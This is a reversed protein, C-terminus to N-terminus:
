PRTGVRAPARYRGETLAKFEEVRQACGPAKMLQALVRQAEAAAPKDGAREQAQRLAWQLRPDAPDEAELARLATPSGSLWADLLRAEWHHPVARILQALENRAEPRRGAALAHLALFFRAPPYADGAGLAKAFAARSESSQDRELFAAGLLHWAEGDEPQAAVAQRLCAIAADLQGDRYLLRGRGTSGPPYAQISRHYSLREINREPMDNLMEAFSPRSRDLAQRILAHRSRDEPIELPFRRDLLRAGDASLTLRGSRSGAPLVFRAPQDPGCPASGLPRGDFEAALSAAPRFTMVAAFPEPGDLDVDLALNRDAYDVKGMGRLLTFFHTFEFSEGPGLWNEVGEFLNDTGGWLEVFNYNADLGLPRGPEGYSGEGEFYFKAGPALRPDCLRLRNVRAAPYYLGAFGCPIDWSFLSSFRQTVQGLLGERPDYKRFQEGRHFSVFCAPFVLETLTKEPPPQFAQVVGKETQNRPFFADSWLRRGLRHPSPNVLRYRISFLGEGPRVTVLQSLLARSFGGRRAPHAYSNHTFEMWQAVTAGGDPHRYVRWSAPQGFNVMGHEAQPFSAKVGSEWYVYWDKGLGECYFYDFGSPKHVAQYLAGALEPVVQVRVYENQIVVCAYTRDAERRTTIRPRADRETGPAPGRAYHPLTLPEESVGVSEANLGGRCPAALFLLLWIRRPLTRARPATTNTLKM